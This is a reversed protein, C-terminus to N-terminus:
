ILWRRAARLARGDSSREHALAPGPRAHPPTDPGPVLSFPSPVLWVRGPSSKAEPGM